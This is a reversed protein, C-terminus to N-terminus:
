FLFIILPRIPVAHIHQHSGGRDESKSEIVADVSPALVDREELVDRHDRQAIGQEPALATCRRWALLRPPAIAPDISFCLSFRRRSSVLLKPSNPSFHCVAPGIASLVRAMRRDINSRSSSGTQRFLRRFDRLRSVPENRRWRRDRRAPSRSGRGHYQWVSKHSRSEEGPSPGM